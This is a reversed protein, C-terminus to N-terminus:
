SDARRRRLAFALGGLGLLATSSPEPVSITISSFYSDEAVPSTASTAQQYGVFRYSRSMDFATSFTGTTATNGNLSYSWTDATITISLTQEIGTTIDNQATSLNTVGVGDYTNTTSTGDYFALVDGGANSPVEGHSSFGIGYAGPLDQNLWDRDGIISFDADVLGISFRSVGSADVLFTVDLTILPSQFSDSTYLNARANRAVWDFDARDDTGNFVWNGSGAGTANVLGTDAFTTNPDAFDSQYVVAAQSAVTAGFLTTLLLSKTKM